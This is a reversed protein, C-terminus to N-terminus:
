LNTPISYSHSSNRKSFDKASIYLDLDWGSQFFSYQSRADIANWTNNAGADAL